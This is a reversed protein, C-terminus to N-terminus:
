NDNCNQREEEFELDHKKGSSDKYIMETPVVKCPGVNPKAPANEEQISIVEKVDLKQGDYEEVPPKKSEASAAQGAEALYLPSQQSRIEDLTSGLVTNATFAIGAACSWITVMLAKKM